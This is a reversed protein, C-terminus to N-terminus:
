TSANTDILSLSRYLNILNRVGCIEDTHTDTMTEKDPLTFSGSTCINRACRHRVVDVKSLWTMITLNEKLLFWRETVPLM